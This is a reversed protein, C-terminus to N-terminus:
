AASSADPEIWLIPQGFEVLAGNDVAIAAVVGDAPAAVPMFMKMSEILCLTDGAKVRQDVEVFPPEEPSPRRYLVGLMPAEVAVATPSVDVAAMPQSAAREVGGITVRRAGPALAVEAGNSEPAMAPPASLAAAAAPTEATRSVATPEATSLSTDSGDGGRSVSLRFPGDELTLHTFGSSEVIKLIEVIDRYSLELTLAM